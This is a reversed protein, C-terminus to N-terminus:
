RPSGSTKGWGGAQDMVIFCPLPQDAEQQQQLAAIPAESDPDSGTLAVSARIRTATTSIVANRGLVASSGAHQRFTAKRDTASVMRYAGKDTRETPYGTDNIPIADALVKELADLLPSIRRRTTPHLDPLYPLLSGRLHRSLGVAQVLLAQRAAADRPRPPHRIPGRDLPPLAHQLTRPAHTQWAHILDDCLDLLLNAVRPPWAVPAAMGFTDLIQPTAGPDEPDVRDLFALVDQFLADPVHQRMWTHFRQLTTHAPVRPAFLALGVLAIADLYNDDL